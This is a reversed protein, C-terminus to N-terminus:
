CEFTKREKFSRLVEEKDIYTQVVNRISKFSKSINESSPRVSFIEVGKGLDWLHSRGYRIHRCHGLKRFERDPVVNVTIKRIHGSRCSRKLEKLHGELTKTSREKKKKKDFFIADSIFVQVDRQTTSSRDLERIFRSIGHSFADHVQANLDDTFAYRDVISVLSGTPLEASSLTRFYRDWFMKPDLVSKGSNALDQAGELWHEFLGTGEYEAGKCLTVQHGSADREISELTIDNESFGFRTNAQNVSLLLLDFNLRSDSISEMHTIPISAEELDIQLRPASGLLAMYQMRFEVPVESMVKKYTELSLNKKNYVLVGYREWFRTVRRHFASMEGKDLYEGADETISDFDVLFPILM